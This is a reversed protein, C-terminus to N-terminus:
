AVVGAEDLFHAKPAGLLHDGLGHALDALGDFGAGHPANAADGVVLRQAEVEFVRGNPGIGLAPRARENLADVVFEVEGQLM